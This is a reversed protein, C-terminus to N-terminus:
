SILRYHPEFHAKMAERFANADGTQLISVLDAHSVSTPTLHKNSHEKLDIIYNFLPLLMQKLRILSQNGTIEYLYSHFQVDAQIHEARSEARKEQEIIADLREFDTPQIRALLFDGLGVELMLRIEFLQRMTADTMLYPEMVREMGSFLDPQALVTGRRKRVDIMGLMKLRSLAERLVSRSVGLAEVLEIEKPISDGVKLGKQKFYDRLREEVQDTMTITTIPAFDAESIM